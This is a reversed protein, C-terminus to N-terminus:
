KEKILQPGAAKPVEKKEEPPVRRKGSFFYYAAGSLFLLSVIALAVPQLMGASGSKSLAANAAKIARDSSALSDAYMSNSLFEEARSVENDIQETDAESARSKAEALAARAVELSSSASASLKSLASSVSANLSSLKAYSANAQMLAESPALPAKKSAALLKDAEDLRSQAQASTFPLQRRSQSTLAGYQSSYNSLMSGMESRLEDYSSRIASALAIAREDNEEAAQGVSSLYSLAQSSFLLSQVFDGQTYFSQAALLADKVSLLEDGSGAKRASAYSESAKTLASLSLASLSSSSDSKAKRLLTIAKQYSGADAEDSASTFANHYKFLASSFQPLYSSNASALAGQLSILSSITSNAESREQLFLLYDGSSLSLAQAETRMQSLLSLAENIRGLSILSKAESLALSDKTRNYTIIILEAQSLAESLAQAQDQIVYSISFQATAGKSLPSFLLSLETENGFPIAQARLISSGSLPSISLNSVAGYPEFLSLEAKSCGLSPSSVALVYSIRKAGLPLTEYNRQSVSASFPSSVAYSITIANKGPLVRPIKGELLGEEGQSSVQLPLAQWNYQAVASHSLLPVPQSIALLPLSRSATFSIERKVQAKEQTALLCEEVSSIIQAPQDMKSFKFSFRQNPSVSPVIITTKGKSPYADSIADGDDFDSYYLPATTFVSFLVESGHFLTSPNQASIYATYDTQQGLIPAQCVEDAQASQSLSSSLYQPVQVEESSIISDLDHEIQKMRGAAAAADLHGDVFYKSLKFLSQSFAPNSLQMQGSLDCARAYKGELGSWGEYIRLLLSQREQQIAGSVAAIIDSSPSSSLLVRYESLMEKEYSVDLGDGQAASLLTAQTSLEREAEQLASANQSGQSLSIALDALRAANTYLVFREGLSKASQAKAFEAEAGLLSARAASLSQASSLSAAQALTAEKAVGISLQAASKQHEAATEADARVIRLSAAANQSIESSSKAESIASSLWSGASKAAFMAESSSLASQARSQDEKAQLYGSYIGSYTSGVLLPGSAPGYPPSDGILDLRESGLLTTELSLLRLSSQANAKSTAYDSLMKEKADSLLLYLSLMRSLSTNAGAGALSNMRRPFGASSFDPLKPASSFYDVLASYSAAEGACFGSGQALLSEAYNFDTAAVGSYNSGAGAKELYEYEAQSLQALSSAASQAYDHAASAHELTASYRIPYYVVFNAADSVKLVSNLNVALSLFFINDLYLLNIGFNERVATEAKAALEHSARQEAKASAIEGNAQSLLSVASSLAARRDRPVSSLFSDPSQIGISELGLSRTSNDFAFSYFHFSAASIINPNSSLYSPDAWFRYLLADPFCSSFSANSSAFTPALSSSFCLLVLILRGVHWGM